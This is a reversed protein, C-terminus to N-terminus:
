DGSLVNDLLRMIEELDLLKKRSKHVSLSESHIRNKFDTKKNNFNRQM